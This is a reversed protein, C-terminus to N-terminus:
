VKRNKLTRNRKYNNRRLTRHRHGSKGGYAIYRPRKTQDFGNLVNTLSRKSPVKYIPTTGESEETIQSNIAGKVPTRLIETNSYQKFESESEAESEPASEAEPEKVSVKDWESIAREVEATDEAPNYALRTFQTKTLAIDPSVTMYPFITDPNFSKEISNYVSEFEKLGYDGGTLVFREILVKLITPNFPTIGIYLLGNYLLSMVDYPTIYLVDGEGHTLYGEKPMLTQINLLVAHTVEEDEPCSEAVAVDEVSPIRSSNDNAGGQQVTTDVSPKQIILGLNRGEKWIPDLAEADGQPFLRRHIQRVKMRDSIVDLAMFEYTKLKFSLEDLNTDLEMLRTNAADIATIMTNLFIKVPKYNKSYKQDDLYNVTGIWLNNTNICFTIIKKLVNNRTHTNKQLLENAGRVLKQPDEEFQKYFVVHEGNQVKSHDQYVCNIKFFDCLSRVVDDTTGIVDIMNSKDLKKMVFSNVVQLVDGLEKILIYKDIERTPDSNCLTNIKQNKESNGECYDIGSGVHNETYKNRQIIVNDMDNSRIVITCIDGSVTSYISELPFGLVDHLINKSLRIDEGEPPFFTTGKTMRYAPDITSAFTRYEHFDTQVYSARLGSDTTLRIVGDALRNETNSGKVFSIPRESMINARNAKIKEKIADLRGSWGVHGKGNPFMRSLANVFKACPLEVSTKGKGVRIADKMIDCVARQQMITNVDMSDLGLGFNESLLETVNIDDTDYTGM